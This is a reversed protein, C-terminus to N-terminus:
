FVILNKKIIIPKIESSFNFKKIVSGTKDNILYTDKSSSIVIVKNSNIVQNGM